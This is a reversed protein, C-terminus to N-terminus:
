QNTAVSAHLCPCTTLTVRALRRIIRGRCLPLRPIIRGRCLPLRLFPRIFLLSAAECSLLPLCSIRRSQRRGLSLRVLYSRLSCRTINIEISPAGGHSGNHRLSISRSLTLWDCLLYDRLQM